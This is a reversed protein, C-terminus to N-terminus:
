HDKRSKTNKSSKTTGKKDCNKMHEAYYALKSAIESSHTHGIVQIDSRLGDKPTVIVIDFNVDEGYEQMLAKYLNDVAKNVEM